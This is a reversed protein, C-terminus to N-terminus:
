LQLAILFALAAIFLWGLVIPLPDKDKPMKM